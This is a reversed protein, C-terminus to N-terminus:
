KSSSTKRGRVNYFTYMPGIIGLIKLDGRLVGKGKCESYVHENEFLTKRPIIRSMRHVYSKYITTCLLMVVNM